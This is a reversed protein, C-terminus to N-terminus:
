FGWLFDKMCATRHDFDVKETSRYRKRAFFLFSFLFFFFSLLFFYLLSTSWWCKPEVGSHQGVGFHKEVGSSFYTWRIRFQFLNVHFRFFISGILHKFHHMQMNYEFEKVNCKRTKKNNVLVVPALCIKVTWKSVLYYYRILIVM